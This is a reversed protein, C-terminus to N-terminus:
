RREHDLDQLTALTHGSVAGAITYLCSGDPLVASVESGLQMGYRAYLDRRIKSEQDISGRVAIYHLVEDTALTEHWVGIPPIMQVTAYAGPFRRGKIDNAYAAEALALSPMDSYLSLTNTYPNYEDRGFLRGPWVIYKAQKLLGVTYRWPAAVRRNSVLRRWEGVPDYQNVRIAVDNLGRDCLYDVADDVTRQGVDHNKARRDWLLLKDPLGVLCGIADIVPRPRGAHVRISGGVRNPVADCDGDCPPAASVVGSFDRNQQHLSATQQARAITALGGCVLLVCLRRTRVPFRFRHNCFFQESITM